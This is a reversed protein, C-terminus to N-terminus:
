TQLKKSSKNGGKRNRKTKGDIKEGIPERISCYYVIAHKSQKCQKKCDKCFDNIEDM